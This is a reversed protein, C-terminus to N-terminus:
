HRAPPRSRKVEYFDQQRTFWLFHDWMEGAEEGQPVTRIVPGFMGPGTNDDLVITPVGFTGLRGVIEKHENLVEERTSDDALAQAKLAPDLGAAELAAEVVGEDAYVKESVFRQQALTDYLRDVAENGHKRRVLAIVRLVPASRGGTWDVEGDGKNIEELSFLQWRVEVPRVQRM